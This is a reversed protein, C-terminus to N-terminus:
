AEVIYRHAKNKYPSASCTGMAPLMARKGCFVCVYGKKKKSQQKLLLIIKDVLKELRIIRSMLELDEQPKM